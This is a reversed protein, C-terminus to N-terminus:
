LHLFQCNKEPCIVESLHDQVPEPFCINALLWLTLIRPETHDLLSAYVDLCFVNIQLSDEFSKSFAETFLWTCVARQERESTLTM